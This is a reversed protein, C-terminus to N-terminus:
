KTATGKRREFRSRLTDGKGPIPLDLDVRPPTEGVRYEVIYFANAMIWSLSVDVATEPLASLPPVHRYLPNANILVQGFLKERLWPAVGEDGVVIKGGTKTVRTIEAFARPIDGFENLGGFHFAADFCGDEFPLYAANGLFFEVQTRSGALQRRAVRIMAPSLDQAFIEGTGDLAKLIQLTDKGTGCGIELVRAGRRLDLREVMSARVSQQDLYLSSFLWDLGIEYRDAGTEYKELFEQDSPRLTDPYVFNPVGSEIPYIRGASGSMTGSVVRDGAMESVTLALRDGGVVCRYREATDRKM